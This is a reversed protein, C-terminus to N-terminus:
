TQMQRFLWGYWCFVSEVRSIEPLLTHYESCRNMRLAGYCVLLKAAEMNDAAIAQVMMLRAFFVDFLRWCLVHITPRSRVRHLPTRGYFDSLNVDAKMELLMEAAQTHGKDVAKYLPTEGNVDQRNLNIRIAGDENQKQKPKPKPTPKTNTTTTNTESTEEADASKPEAADGTAAAPGLVGFESLFRAHGNEAAVHLINEEAKNKM